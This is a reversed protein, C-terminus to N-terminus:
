GLHELPRIFLRTPDRRPPLHDSACPKHAGSKSLRLPRQASLPSLHSTLLHPIEYAVPSCQPHKSHGYHIGKQPRPRDKRSSIARARPGPPLRAPRPASQQRNPTTTRCHRPPPHDPHYVSLTIPHYLRPGSRWNALNGLPHRKPRYFRRKSKELALNGSQWTIRARIQCLASLESRPLLPSTFPSCSLPRVATIKDSPM